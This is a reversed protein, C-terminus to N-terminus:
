HIQSEWNKIYALLQDKEPYSTLFSRAELSMGLHVIKNILNLHSKDQSAFLFF